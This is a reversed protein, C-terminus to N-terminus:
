ELHFLNVGFIFAIVFLSGLLLDFLKQIGQVVPKGLIRLENCSYEM